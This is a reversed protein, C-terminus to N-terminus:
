PPYKTELDTGRITKWMADQLVLAAGTTSSNFVVDFVHAAVSFEDIDSIGYEEYYMERAIQEAQKRELLAM